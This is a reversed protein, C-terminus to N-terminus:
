NFFLSSALSPNAYLEHLMAPPAESAADHHLSSEGELVQGHIQSCEQAM